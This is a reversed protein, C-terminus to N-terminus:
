IFVIGASFDECAKNEGENERIWVVVVMTTIEVVVVFRMLLLIVTKRNRIFVSSARLLEIWFLQIENFNKLVHTPSHRTVGGDGDDESGVVLPSFSNLNGSNSNLVRKPDLFQGITQHFLSRFRRSVICWLGLAKVDDIKNFVLLILFDPIRDFHDIQPFYSYPKPYIQNLNLPQDIRHSCM